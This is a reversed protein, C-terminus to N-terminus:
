RLKIGCSTDSFITQDPQWTTLNSSCYSIECLEGVSEVACETAAFILGVIAFNKGYSHSTSKMEHFIERVTQQKVDPGVAINPNVSSSFLGIVLGLGYGAPIMM